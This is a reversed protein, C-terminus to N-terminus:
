KYACCAFLFVRFFYSAPAPKIFSLRLSSAARQRELWDTCKVVFSHLIVVDPCSFPIVAAPVAVPLPAGASFSGSGRVRVERWSMRLMPGDTRESKKKLHHNKKRKNKSRSSLTEHGGRLGAPVLYGATVGAPWGTRGVRESVRWFVWAAWERQNTWSPEPHTDKAAPPIKKEKSRASWCEPPTFLSLFLLWKWNQLM